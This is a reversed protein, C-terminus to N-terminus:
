PMKKDLYQRCTMLDKLMSLQKQETLVVLVIPFDGSIGFRWLSEQQLRNTIRAELNQTMPIPYFFITRSFEQFLHIKEIPIPEYRVEVNSRALSMEFARNISNPSFYSKIIQILEDKTDAATTVFSISETGNPNLEVIPRLSFIPDLTRKSGGLFPISSKMAEPNHISNNRGIFTRRNTDWQLRSWCVSYIIMHGLFVEKEDESRPVRRFILADYQQNFESEIFM